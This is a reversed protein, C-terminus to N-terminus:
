LNNKIGMAYLTDCKKLAGSNGGMHGKEDKNFIGEMLVYKGNYEMLEKRSAKLIKMIRNLGFHIKIYEISIISRPLGFAM